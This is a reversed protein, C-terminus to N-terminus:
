NYNWNLNIIGTIIGNITIGDPDILYCDMRYNDWRNYIWCEDTIFVRYGNSHNSYTVMLDM